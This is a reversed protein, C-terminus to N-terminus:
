KWQEFKLYPGSIKKVESDVHIRFWRPLRSAKAADDRPDIGEGGQEAEL